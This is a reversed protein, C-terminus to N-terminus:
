AKSAPERDSRDVSDGDDAAFPDAPIREAPTADGGRDGAPRRWARIALFGLGIALLGLPAVVWPSRVDSGADGDGTSAAELEASPVSVSWDGTAISAITVGDGALVDVSGGDPSALLDLTGLENLFPQLPELDICLATGEATNLAHVFPLEGAGDYLTYAWVGDPSTARSLPRGRMVEPALRRDIIPEALLRREAVDYARVEYRTPDRPSLYHILYITSGDPSIADFSFDGALDIEATRDLSATDLVVLRTNRRPFSVRPEILTLTRGDASLGSTTGDYAVGPVALTGELRRLALTRGRDDPEAAVKTVQTQGRDSIAYYRSGDAQSEIGTRTTDLGIAPLGDGSAPPAALFLLGLALAPVVLYPTRPMHEGISPAPRKGEMRGPDGWRDRRRDGTATPRRSAPRRAGTM